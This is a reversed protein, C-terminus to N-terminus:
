LRQLMEVLRVVRYDKFEDNIEDLSDGCDHELEYLFAMLDLSDIIGDSVLHTEITVKDSSGPVAKELAQVIMAFAEQHTM